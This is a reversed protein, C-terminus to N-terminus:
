RPVLSKVLRPLVSASRSLSNQSPKLTNWFKSHLDGNSKRRAVASSPTQFVAPSRVDNRREEEEELTAGYKSRSPSIPKPFEPATEFANWLKLRLGGESQRNSKFNPYSQQSICSTIEFRNELDIPLRAFWKWLTSCNVCNKFECRWGTVWNDLSLCDM